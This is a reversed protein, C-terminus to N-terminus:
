RGRSRIISRRRCTAPLAATVASAKASNGAAPWLTVIPTHRSAKAAAADYPQKTTNQVIGWVNRGCEDAAPPMAIIVLRPPM